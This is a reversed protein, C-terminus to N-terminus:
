QVIMEGSMGLMKHFSHSCKLPYRGAKPVLAIDVSGRQAVEVSGDEIAGRDEHRVTAAAFFEPATFDHGGSSTNVLHLVVPKAAELRITRPAYKFSALIVEVSPATTWDSQGQTGIGMALLALNLARM